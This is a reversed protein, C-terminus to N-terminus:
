WSGFTQKLVAAVSQRDAPQLEGILRQVDTKLVTVPKDLRVTSPFLLNAGKWDTISVDMPTQPSNSTIRTVVLDADGTDLLVMAPRVKGGTGGVFPFFVLVIEGHRYNTM